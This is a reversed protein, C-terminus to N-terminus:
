IDNINRELTVLKGMTKIVMTKNWRLIRTGMYRYDMHCVCSIYTAWSFRTKGQYITSGLSTFALQRLVYRNNVKKLQYDAYGLGFRIGKGTDPEATEFAGDVKPWPLDDEHGNDTECSLYMINPNETQIFSYRDSQFLDPYDDYKGANWLTIFEIYGNQMMQKIEDTSFSIGVVEYAIVNWCENEFDNTILTTYFRKKNFTADTIPNSVPWINEAAKKTDEPIATTEPQEEDIEADKLEPTKLETQEVLDASPTSNLTANYETEKGRINKKWLNDGGRLSLIIILLAAVGCV